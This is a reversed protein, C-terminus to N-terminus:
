RTSGARKLREYRSALKGYYDRDFDHLHGNDPPWALVLECGIETRPIRVETRIAADRACAGVYYETSSAGALLPRM